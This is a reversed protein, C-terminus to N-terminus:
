IDMALLEEQYQEFNAFPELMVANENDRSDIVRDRCKLTISSIREIIKAVKEIKYLYSIYLYYFAIMAFEALAIFLLIDYLIVYSTATVDYNFYTVLLVLSGGNLVYSTYLATNATSKFPRITCLYILFLICILVNIALTQYADLIRNGIAFYIPRLILEVGFFYSCNDKFPAQYADLYPKIYEAILRFRYSFRNFLMLLNFPLLVCLLLILCVAFLISFKIGFLPVSSDWTWIVTRKHNPLSYVTTYSFLVRFTVQLLKTYTLLFVTAIVPIVRRRTLKEVSSSYRSAFALMAIIFLLYSPFAFQLWMKDYETMGHYFCTEIGLDLNFLSLIIFFINNKSPFVEFTNGAVLNAYMIFGYVKGDVVTLNLAFLVLVLMVGAFMFPILLLLWRNSCKRCGYFGLTTSLGPPCQACNIGVRNNKCQANYFELQIAHVSSSKECFIGVCRKIYLINDKNSSLGIWSKEPRVITQTEIDCTLRPFAFKLHKNCACSGNYLEFGLPCPKFDIYYLYMSNDAGIATLPAFCTAFNSSASYVKYSLPTCKTGILQVWKSEYDLVLSCQEYPIPKHFVTLRKTHIATFSNALLVQKISIPITQGPFIPGFHDRICDTHVEAECSCFTTCQRSIVSKINANAEIHLVRKYVDGPTHQKFACRKDWYCTNLKSGNVISYYDKNGKFILSFNTKNHLFDKDLNGQPSVFQFLCPSITFQSKFYVLASTTSKLASNNSFNVITNEEIFIYNHLKLIFNANNHSFETYGKFTLLTKNYDCTLITSVDKVSNSHFLNRGTFNLNRVNYYELKFGNNSTFVCNQVLVTHQILNSVRVNWFTETANNSAFKSFTMRFKLLTKLSKDPQIVSCVSCATNNCIRSHSLEFYAVSTQTNYCINDTPEILIYIIHNNVITNNTFSSNHISVYNISSSNYLIFLLPGGGKLVTNYINANLLKVNVSYMCQHFVIKIASSNHTNTPRSLQHNTNRINHVTLNEVLLDVVTHTRNNNIDHYFLVLSSVTTNVNYQVCSEKQTIYSITISRLVSNGILNIGIIGYGYCSQIDVNVIIMSNVNCLLIVAATVKESFCLPQNRNRNDTFHQNSADCFNIIKINQMKVFTSDSVSLFMGNGNATACRIVLTPMTINDGTITLNTVDKILVQKGLEYVGPLLFLKTFSRLYKLTSKLLTSWQLCRTTSGHGGVHYPPKVCISRESTACYNWGVLFFLIFSITPKMIVITTCNSLVM